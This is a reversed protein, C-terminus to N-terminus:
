PQEGSFAKGGVMGSAIYRLVNMAGNGSSIFYLLFAALIDLTGAILGVLAIAKWFDTTSKKDMTRTKFLLIFSFKM